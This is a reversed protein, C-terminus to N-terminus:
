VRGKYLRRVEKRAKKAAAIRYTKRDIRLRMGVEPYVERLFDFPDGRKEPTYYKKIADIIQGKSWGKKRRAMFWKRRNKLMIKFPETGFLMPVNGASFIHRIEMNIFGASRLRMYAEDFGVITVREPTILAEALIAAVSKRGTRAKPRGILLTDKLRQVDITRLGVGFQKRLEKNVRVRGWDPHTIILVKAKALRISRDVKKAM